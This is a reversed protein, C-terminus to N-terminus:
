VVDAVMLWDSKLLSEGVECGSTYGWCVVVWFIGDSFEMDSTKIKQESEIKHKEDNQM